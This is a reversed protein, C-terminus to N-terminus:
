GERRKLYREFEAALADGSGDSPDSDHDDILSAVYEHLDDDSDVLETVETEWRRAQQELESLELNADLITEIHQLLALTAKPSPSNAVYHPLTAWLSMTNVGVRECAHTFVGTIGTPGEYTQQVAGYRDQVDPDSSTRSIPVPLTHPHDSLLAGLVLVLRPKTSRLASILQSCFMEWRLNPEIGQVLVLDVAREASDVLRGTRVMTSPWCIERDAGIGTIMPRTAQLDYYEEGMEWVLHARSRHQLHELADTAAGGADSWGGFAVVVVPDVVERLSGPSSPDSIAMLPLM